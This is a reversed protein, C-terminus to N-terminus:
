GLASNRGGVAHRECCTAFRREAAERRHAHVGDVAHDIEDARDVLDVALAERAHHLGAGVVGRRHQEAHLVAHRAIEAGHRRGARAEAELHEARLAPMPEFAHRVDGARRRLLPARPQEAGALELRDLSRQLGPLGLLEVDDAGGELRERARGLAPRGEGNRGLLHTWPATPRRSALRDARRRAAFIRLVLECQCSRIVSCRACHIEAVAEAVQGIRRQHMGAVGPVSM